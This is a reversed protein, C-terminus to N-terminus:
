RMTWRAQGKGTPDLSMIAMYVCKLAAIENPRRGCGKVVRRIRASVSKSWFCMVLARSARNPVTPVFREVMRIVPDDVSGPNSHPIFIVPYVAALPRNQWEAMGDM